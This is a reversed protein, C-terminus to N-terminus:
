NEKIDKIKKKFEDIKLQDQIALRKLVEERNLHFDKGDFMSTIESEEFFGEYHKRFVSEFYTKNFITRDYIEHGKGSCTSSFNHAMFNAHENVERKAGNLFILTAASAVAGDLVTTIPADCDDMANLIQLTTSLCGGPSNLFVTFSDNKSANRFANLLLPLNECKDIGLHIYVNHNNVITTTARTRIEFFKKSNKDDGNTIEIDETM